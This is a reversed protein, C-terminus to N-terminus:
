LHQAELRGYRLVTLTLPLIVGYRLYDRRPECNKPGESGLSDYEERTRGVSTSPSLVTIARSAPIEGRIQEVTTPTIAGPVKGLDM